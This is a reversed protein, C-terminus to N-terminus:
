FNKFLLLLKMVFCTLAMRSCLSLDTQADMGETWCRQYESGLYHLVTYGFNLVRDLTQLHAYRQLYMKKHCPKYVKHTFYSIGETKILDEDFKCIVLITLITKSPDSLTDTLPLYDWIIM